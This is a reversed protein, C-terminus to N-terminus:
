TPSNAPPPQRGEAAYIRKNQRLAITELRVPADFSSPVGAITITFM